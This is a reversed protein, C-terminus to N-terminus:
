LWALLERLFRDRGHEARDLHVYHTAQDLRVARVDSAGTLDAALTTLDGPRSWFDLESRLVLTRATIRGADWLNRGTALSFSDELAGTPARFSPPERDGATPDSALSGDVYSQAVAPDRWESKDEAPISSDWSPLLSAGTHYRYAGIADNFEGPRDPDEYPSGHGLTPHDDLIGYLSNHVVLSHVRHPQVSAYWGAWHGGTAWGVLDVRPARTRSRLWDVVVGIDRVVQEGTVLPPGAEPPEGMETPRTSTGYGRADMLYVRHGARALDEALSGGAVPLDFSPIGPVRAGHLLLLPRPEAPRPPAVERVGLSRGHGAPVQFDTRHIRGEAAVPTATAAFMLTAVALGTRRISFMGDPQWGDPITVSQYSIRTRSM